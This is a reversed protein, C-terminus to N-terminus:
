EDVLTLPSKEPAAEPKKEPKMDEALAKRTALVLPVAYMALAIEEVGAGTQLFGIFRQGWPYKVLVPMLREAMGQCTEPTWIAATKKFGAIGAAIGLLSVFGSLSQLPDMVPAPAAEITPEAEAEQSVPAAEADLAAAEAQLANLDEASM